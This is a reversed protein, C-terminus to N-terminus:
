ETLVLGSGNGHCKVAPLNSYQYIDSYYLGYVRGKGEVRKLERWNSFALVWLKVGNSGLALIGRLQNNRYSKYTRGVRIRSALLVMLRFPCGGSQFYKRLTKGGSLSKTYSPDIKDLFTNQTVHDPTRQYTALNSAFIMTAIRRSTSVTLSTAKSSRQETDCTFLTILPFTFYTELSGAIRIPLLLSTM